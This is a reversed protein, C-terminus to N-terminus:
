EEIKIAEMLCQDSAKKACEMNKKSIISSKGNRDLKFVDPCMETCRGCGICREQDIHISM